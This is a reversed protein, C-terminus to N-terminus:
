LLSRDYGNIEIEHEFVESIRHIQERTLEETFHKRGKRHDSKAFINLTGPFPVGLSHFTDALDANLNEYKLIKDVIIKGDKDTYLPYNLCFDGSEFYKEMTLTDFSRDKQMHYYSLTKDWPNREVCFKYYSKWIKGSVRLRVKEASIHNYFKERSCIENLLRKKRRFGNYRFEPLPNWYGQFNRARHPTVHPYIPTLIDKEGCVQSLFVEISTGATKKTKIFIFKYKHSIVM